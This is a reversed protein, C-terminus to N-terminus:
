TTSDEPNVLIALYCQCRPHRPPGQLDIYVAAEKDNFTFEDRLGIGKGHLSSWIECPSNNEFNAVWFKVVKFGKDVLASFGEILSDTYGRQAAVGASHQIRSIARKRDTETRNSAKYERLNRRVDRLLAQLYPSNTVVPAKWGPQGYVGQVSEAATGASLRYSLRIVNELRYRISQPSYAGSDWLAFSLEIQYRASTELAIAALHSSKAVQLQEAYTIVLAV